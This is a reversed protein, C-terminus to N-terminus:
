TMHGINLDIFDVWRTICDGDLFEEVQMADVIKNVKRESYNKLLSVQFSKQWVFIVRLAFIIVAVDSNTVSTSILFIPEM